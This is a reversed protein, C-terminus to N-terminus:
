KQLKQLARYYGLHIIRETEFGEKKYVNEYGESTREIYYKISRLGDRCIDAKSLGTLNTLEELDQYDKPSLDVTIRIREKPRDENTM